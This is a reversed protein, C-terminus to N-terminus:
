PLTDSLVVPDKEVEEPATKKTKNTKNNADM